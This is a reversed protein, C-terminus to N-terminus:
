TTCSPDAWPSDFRKLAVTPFTVATELGTGAPWYKQRTIAMPGEPGLAGELSACNLTPM